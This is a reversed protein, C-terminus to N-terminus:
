PKKDTDERLMGIDTRYAMNDFHIQDIRQYVKDRAENFDNGLALVSLVRGGNTLIKEGDRKTGNHYIYSDDLSDSLDKIEYGKEYSAPYGRSYLITTMAVQNSWTLEIDEKALSKEILDILDSELRPLLVQTEPDGFRTNFELIYLEDDHTMYGIFLIGSYGLDEKEFGKEIKRLIEDSAKQHEAQWYPNPSLCGVGGTNPGKDDNYAKKYDMATDFPIIKNGSVLCLLSAEFGTFYREIIVFSGQDKFIQDLFISKLAAESEDKNQCIFVGKGACLGDAKIVEPYGYLGSAELAAEFNDFTQYSATPIDYKEMFSKAFSKSGELRASKKNPGFVSHGREQLFDVIGENLPNEPGIITLDIDLSKIYDEIQNFDQSAELTHIKDENAGNPGLLYIAKSKNSKALAVAIAHERGGNGVILINM